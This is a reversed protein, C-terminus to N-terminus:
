EIEVIAEVEVMANLPLASVGVSSRAHKGKDGFAAVMLDSAGNAAFPINATYDTCQAFVVLKVIQKVRM